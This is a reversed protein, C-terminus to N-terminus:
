YGEPDSLRAIEIEKDGIDRRCELRSNGIVPPAAEGVDQNIARLTHLNVERIPSYSPSGLFGM